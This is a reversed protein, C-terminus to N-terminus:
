SKSSIYTTINDVSMFNEVTMDEFPVNIEFEGEIFRVLKMMGMSDVIGTELLNEHNSLQDIPESSIKNLIYDTIKRSDTM